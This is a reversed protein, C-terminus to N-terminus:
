IGDLEIWGSFSVFDLIMESDLDFLQAPNTERELNAVWFSQGNGMYSHHFTAISMGKGFLHGLWRDSLELHDLLAWAEM